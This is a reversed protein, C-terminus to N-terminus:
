YSIYIKFYTEKKKAGSQLATIYVSPILAFVVIFFRSNGFKDISNMAM